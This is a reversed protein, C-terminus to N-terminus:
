RSEGRTIEISFHTNGIPTETPKIKEDIDFHVAIKQPQAKNCHPSLVRQGAFTLTWGNPYM